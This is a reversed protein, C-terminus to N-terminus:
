NSLQSLSAVVPSVGVIQGPGRSAGACYEIPAVGGHILHGVWPSGSTYLPLVYFFSAVYRNSRCRTKAIMFYAHARPALNLVRPVSARFYPSSHRYTFTLLRAASTYFRVTPYGHLQCLGTGTNTITLVLTEEGSSSASENPASYSLASSTCEKSSNLTTTTTSKSHAASAGAAPGVLVAVVVLAALYGIPRRPRPASPSM